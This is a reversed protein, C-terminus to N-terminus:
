RGYIKMVLVTMDDEPTGGSLTTAMEMIRDALEQPPMEEEAEEIMTKIWEEHGKKTQLGDSLMVIVDRDFVKHAFTEIEVEQMVGVPLSAARIIEVEDGRKIYSPEAGNKVFEAEGSFLDIVCMDVTAFAENASKMVMISNILRVAISKDFGAELFDGLLKVTAGSDRSARAGTGMGDSLAAAFKGNSLYRMACNDGSETAKGICSVGSEVIYGEPQAFRMLVGGPAGTAGIMVMRVGLVARLVKEAARQCLEAETPKAVELYATYRGKINVTVDVNVIDVNRAAMRARIEEDSGDDIKEECIEEAIGDLIQAMSGLQQGALERNECLKSKWVCNIKYIEYLRNMERVFSRIRLCRKEFFGDASNETLEGNEEMAQLMKFMTQYTSDFGTVWCESVRSCKKCVRNAVGDFMISVDEVDIKDPEDSLDLFTEALVRFSDAASNLRMKTFDRYGSDVFSGQRIGAIRGINRVVADPTLIIALVSLPIDMYGIPLMGNESCYVSLVASVMGTAVCIATKGHKAVVGSAAGCLAFLAAKIMIDEGIGLLLGTVLGCVAGSASGGCLAFIAVLWLGGINAASFFEYASFSKLGILLIAALLIGYVKEERNMSFIKRSGGRLVNRMKEFIIAGLVTMLVDCLLQLVGGPSFGVWIMEGIRGITIAIGAACVASIPSVEEDGSGAAFLFILYIAISSIYRLAITMDLLSIYGIATIAASIIASRSFRREIALFSIGFPAYKGFPMARAILIGVMRVVVNYILIARKETNGKNGRKNLPISLKKTQEM